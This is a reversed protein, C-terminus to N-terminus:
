NDDYLDLRDEALTGELMEIFGYLRDTRVISLNGVRNVVLIDKPDLKKLIEMLVEVTLHNDGTM